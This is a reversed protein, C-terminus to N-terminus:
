GGSIPPIIRLTDGDSLPTDMGQLMRTNQNNLFVGVFLRGDEKFMRQRLRPELRLVDELAEGVTTGECEVEKQGDPYTLGLPLKRRVKAM